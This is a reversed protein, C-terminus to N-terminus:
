YIRLYNYVWENHWTRRKDHAVFQKFSNTRIRSNSLFFYDQQMGYQREQKNQLKELQQKAYHRVINETIRGDTFLNIDVFIEM